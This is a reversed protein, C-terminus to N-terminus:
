EIIITSVSHGINKYIFNRNGQQTTYYKVASLTMTIKQADGLFKQLESKSIVISNADSKMYKLFGSPIFVGTNYRKYEFTVYILDAEKPSEFDIKLEKEEKSIKYEKNIKIADPFVTIGEKKTIFSKEDAKTLNNKAKFSDNNPINVLSVNWTVGKTANYKLSLNEVELKGLFLYNLDKIPDFEMENVAVKGVIGTYYSSNPGVFKSIKEDFWFGNEIKDKENEPLFNKAEAGNFQFHAQAEGSFNKQITFVGDYKFDNVWQAKSFDLDPADKSPAPDDALTCGILLFFLSFVSSLTM